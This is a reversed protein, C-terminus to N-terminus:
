EASRLGLARDLKPRNFGVVVVGNVDTVPVGTQGSKRKLAALGTASTTVDVEKFPVRRDKL